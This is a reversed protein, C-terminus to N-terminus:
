YYLIGHVTVHLSQSFNIKVCRGMQSPRVIPLGYPVLVNIIRAVINAASRVSQSVIQISSPLTPSSGVLVGYFRCHLSSTSHRVCVMPFLPFFSHPLKHYQNPRSNTPLPASPIHDDLTAFCRCRCRCHIADRPLLLNNNVSAATCSPLFADPWFPQM